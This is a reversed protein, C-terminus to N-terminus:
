EESEIQSAEIIEEGRAIVRERDASGALGILLGADARGVVAWGVERAFAPARGPSMSWRFPEGKIALWYTVIASRPEFGIEGGEREVMFSFVLRAPVDTATALERLLSRVRSEALYMLLGEALFITRRRRDIAAIPLVSETQDGGSFDAEVLIPRGSGVIMEIAPRKEALTASHDIEVVRVDPHERAIRVGLTDFGAGLVVFQSAGDAIAARVRAEIWRKRMMWHLVIGPHTARELLRWAARGIAPRCSALLRRGTKSASLFAESWRAAEPAILDAAAPDRASLVTAGAILRATASANGAKM